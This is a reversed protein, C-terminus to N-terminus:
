HHSKGPSWASSRKRKGTHSIMTLGREKAQQPNLGVQLVACDYPTALAPAEGGGLEENESETPLDYCGRSDDGDEGKGQSETLWGVTTSADGTNLCDGDDRPHDHSPYSDPITRSM